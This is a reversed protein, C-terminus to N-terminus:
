QTAHAGCRYPFSNFSIVAGNVAHSQVLPCDAANPPGDCEKWKAYWADSGYYHTLQLLIYPFRDRVIRVENLDVIFSSSTPLVAGAQSTGLAHAAM